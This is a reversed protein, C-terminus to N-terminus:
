HICHADISSPQLNSDSLIRFIFFVPSSQWIGGNLGLCVSAMVSM